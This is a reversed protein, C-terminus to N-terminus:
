RRGPTRLMHNVSVVSLSSSRSRVSRARLVRKPRVRTMSNGRIRLKLSRTKKSMSPSHDWHVGDVAAEHALKLVGDRQRFVGVRRDGVAESEGLVLDDFAKLRQAAGAPELADTRDQALPLRAEARVRHDDEGRRRLRDSRESRSQRFTREYAM